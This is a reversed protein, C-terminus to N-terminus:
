LDESSVCWEDYGHLRIVGREGSVVRNLEGSTQTRAVCLENPEVALSVPSGEGIPVGDLLVSLSHFGATTSSWEIEYTGDGLDLVVCSVTEPVSAAIKAGGHDCRNGFRDFTHVVFARREGARMRCEPAPAVVRCHGADPPAPTILVRVQPSALTGHHGRTGTLRPAARPQAAHHPLGDSAM